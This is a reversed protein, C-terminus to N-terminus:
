IVAYVDKEMMLIYIVGDKEIDLGSQRNFIVLDDVHLWKSECGLAKVTGQNSREVATDPLYLGGQTKVIPATPEILVRDPAIVIQKEM